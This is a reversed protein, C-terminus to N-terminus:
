SCDDVVSQMLRLCKLYFSNEFGRNNSFSFLDLIIATLRSYFLSKKKSQQACDWVELNKFFYSMQESDDWNDYWLFLVFFFFLFFFQYRNKAMEDVISFSDYQYLIFTRLVLWLVFGILFYCHCLCMFYLYTFLYSSLVLFHPFYFHWYSIVNVDIMSLESECDSYNLKHFDVYGDFHFVDFCKFCSQLCFGKLDLNSQHKEIGAM